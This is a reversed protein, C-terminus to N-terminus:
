ESVFEAEHNLVGIREGTKPSVIWYCPKGRGRDEIPAEEAELVLGKVCGHRKEIPLDELLRIKM